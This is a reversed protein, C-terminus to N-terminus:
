LAYVIDRAGVPVGSPDVEGRGNEASFSDLLTVEMEPPRRLRLGEDMGRLPKAAVCM